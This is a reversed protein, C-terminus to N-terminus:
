GPAPENAARSLQAGPLSREGEPRLTAPRPEPLEPQGPIQTHGRVADLIPTAFQALVEELRPNRAPDHKFQRSDALGQEIPTNYLLNNYLIVACGTRESGAGCHVLAPQRAPDIMLLLGQVYANPNGTADGNLDFRYRPIGLADATRQNRRDGASDRDYSGLDIITRIHHSEAIARFQAPSLQGARCLKGPDVEAYNKPSLNSSVTPKFFVGLLALASVILNLAPRRM